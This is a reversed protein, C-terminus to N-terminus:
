YKYKDVCFFEGESPWNICSFSDKVRLNYGGRSITFKSNVQM